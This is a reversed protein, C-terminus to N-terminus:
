HTEVYWRLHSWQCLKKVSSRQWGEAKSFACTDSDRKGLRGVSCTVLLSKYLNFDM